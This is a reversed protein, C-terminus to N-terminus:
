KVATGFVFRSLMAPLEKVTMQKMEIRSFGVEEIEKKADFTGAKCRITFGRWFPRYLKQLKYKFTHDQHQVNEMFYFKGGQKGFNLFCCNSM